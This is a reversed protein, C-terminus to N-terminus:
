ERVFVVWDDDRWAVRWVSSRRLTKSLQKDAQWIVVDARYRDLIPEPPETHRLLAASDSIVSLPFMDVRDDIFVQVKTGYRAELYNGVFDPAVVREDLMSRSELWTVADEPYPDLDTPSGRLTVIAVLSAMVVLTAMAVRGRRLRRAGDISGLGAAGIAMGPVLVVSAVVINRASTVALVAFVLLPLATRWRRTRALLAVAVILELLFVIQWPDNFKPRQWEVVGSFAERKSVVTLPFLLIRPGLPNVAALLTGVLAWALARLEVTPRAGDLRRGIALLVLAGIGLPFSGHSNVWVWMVPVLWRPDLREEAAGLLLAFGVLGILLPREVWSGGGIAAVMGAIGIRAVLGGAPRTLTWVLLILSVTLATELLRIGNLGGLRDSVGYLVSAFWSQVVWPRGNGTFSYPDTRPIGGRALILRGTALHTLFSNDGLPQTGILVGWLAFAAGIIAALSPIPRRTAIAEAQGGPAAPEGDDGGARAGPAALTHTAM